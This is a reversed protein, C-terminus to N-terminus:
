RVCKHGRILPTLEWNKADSQEKSSGFLGTSGFSVQLCVLSRDTLSPSIFYNSRVQIILYRTTNDVDGGDSFTAIKLVSSLSSNNM